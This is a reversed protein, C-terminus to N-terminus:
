LCSEWSSVCSVMRTAHTWVVVTIARINLASSFLCCVTCTTFSATTSRDQRTLSITAFFKSWSQAANPGSIMFVYRMCGKTVSMFSLSCSTRLSATRMMSAKSSSGCGRVLSCSCVWTSGVNWDRTTSEACITRAARACTMPGTALTSPQSTVWRWSKLMMESRMLSSNWSTRRFMTDCAPRIQSTSLTSPRTCERRWVMEFRMMSLWQRMRWLTTSCTGFSALSKPTSMNTDFSSASKKDLRRSETWQTRCEAIIWVLSMASAKPACHVM